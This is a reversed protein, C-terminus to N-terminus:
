DGHKTGWAFSCKIQVVLCVIPADCVGDALEVAGPPETPCVMPFKPLVVRIELSKLKGLVHFLVDNVILGIAVECMSVIRKDIVDLWLFHGRRQSLM